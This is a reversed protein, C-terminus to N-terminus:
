RSVKEDMFTLMVGARADQKRTEPDANLLQHEGQVAM